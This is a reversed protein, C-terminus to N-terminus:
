ASHSAHPRNGFDNTEHPPKSSYRSDMRKQDLTIQNLYGATHLIKRSSQPLTALWNRESAEFVPAKHCGRPYMLSFLRRRKSCHSRPGNMTQRSSLQALAGRQSRRQAKRWLALPPLDKQRCSGPPEQGTLQWAISCNPRGDPCWNLPWLPAPASEFSLRICLMVLSCHDLELLPPGFHFTCECESINPM